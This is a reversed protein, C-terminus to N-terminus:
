GPVIAPDFGPCRGARVWGRVGSVGAMGVSGLFSVGIDWRVTAARATPATRISAAQEDLLEEGAADLAADFAGDPAADLAADTQLSDAAAPATATVTTSKLKWGASM